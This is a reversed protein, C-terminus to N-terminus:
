LRDGDHDPPNYYDPLCPEPVTSSLEQRLIFGCYLSLFLSHFHSPDKSVEFRMDLSLGEGVIGCNGIRRLVKWRQPVFM